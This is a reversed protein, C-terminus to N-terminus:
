KKVINEIKNGKLDEYHRTNEWSGTLFLLKAEGNVFFLQAYQTRNKRWVKM